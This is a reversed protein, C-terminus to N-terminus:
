SSVRSIEFVRWSTSKGKGDKGKRIGARIWRVPQKKRCTEGRMAHIVMQYEIEQLRKGFHARLDMITVRAYSQNIEALYKELIQAAFLRKHTRQAYNGLQEM